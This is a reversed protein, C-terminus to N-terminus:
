VTARRGVEVAEQVILDPVEVVPRRDQDVAKVGIAKVLHNLNAAIDCGTFRELEPDRGARDKTGFNGIGSGKAQDRAGHGGAKIVVVEFQEGM